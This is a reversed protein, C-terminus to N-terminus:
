KKYHVKFTYNCFHAIDQIAENETINWCIKEVPMMCVNDGPLCMTQHWFKKPKM